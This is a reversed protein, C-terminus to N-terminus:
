GHRNRDCRLFESDDIQIENELVSEDLKSERIGTVAVNTSKAIIRLKELEPLLTNININWKKLCQQKHQHTTVINLSVDGSLLILLHM